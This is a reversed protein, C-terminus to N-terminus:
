GKGRGKQVSRGIRSIKSKVSLLAHIEDLDLIRDKNRDFKRILARINTNAQIHQSYIKKMWYTDKKSAIGTGNKDVQSWAWRCNQFFDSYQPSADSPNKVHIYKTLL